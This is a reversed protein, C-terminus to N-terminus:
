PCSSGACSRDAALRRTLAGLSPDNSPDADALLNHLEDPDAVLDYYERGVVRGQKLYEIYQYTATRDSVWTPADSQRSSHHEILLRSRHSPALLSTGDVPYRTDPTLGAAAMLTPFIDATSALRHDVSGPDIHGPWRVMLPVQIGQTYPSGKGKLGHEGWLFGNDSLFIAITDRTEDLGDMMQFVRQVLDDVSMLTRLQKRRLIRGRRPKTYRRRVFRPKDSRDKEHVAANPKRTPVHATAYRPQPTFPAHPAGTGVYLFWPRDDQQEFDNLYTVAKDSIFSTTYRHVRRIKGQLNFQRNYYEGQLFISWKDFYPPNDATGWHNLYKGTIATLYGSRQLYRQITKQQDLKHSDFNTLVHHNHPYEGTMVSSRSPCCLPTTDFASAFTRGQTGFLRKTNPMVGLTGTARQDDTIVILINPRKQSATSRAQDTGTTCAGIVLTGCMLAAFTRRSM